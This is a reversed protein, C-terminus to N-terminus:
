EKNFNQNVASLEGLLEKLKVCIGDFNGNSFVVVVDGTQIKSSLHSVIAAADPQFYAQKGLQRIHAVVKEPDLREQASLQELRAVQSIYVVDATALAHALENQFVSRRTTNSRPEFLAFIRRNPYRLKVADITAQIATPHHGFDDIITIGAAEAVVEMRRKVGRFQALATAADKLPVGYAHATMIAMAANRANHLGSLRLQVQEGLVTFTCGQSLEVFDRIRIKANSSLGVEYVPALSHQTVTRARMDDANVFVRGRRPVLNILRVFATEIESIDKFIDAHDFELNNIVVTEPLYHLFKSRKDFFATDYEDGELVWLGSGSWHAGTGLDIPVGGILFSPDRGCFRFIHALMASTTTKGHTGTVVINRSGWLFTNKIIEPLSTYPIGKDLVEELEPNGRSIVNGIVVLDPKPQLNRPNYGEVFSVGHRQLQESMPPYIHEDSGSIRIGGKKLMLAVNGMATGAIGLFHIHKGQLDMLLSVFNLTSGCSRVVLKYSLCAFINESSRCSFKDIM